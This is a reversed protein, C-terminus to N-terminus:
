FFHNRRYIGVGLGRGSAQGAGLERGSARGEELGRGSAQGGWTRARFSPGGLDAGQLKAKGLDAGQLNAGEFDVKFLRSSGLDAFQLDRGKLNLGEYFKIWDTEESKGDALYRQIITDSPQGAVLLQERVVIRPCILPFIKKVLM